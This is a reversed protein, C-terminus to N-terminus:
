GGGAAGVVRLGVPGAFAEMVRERQDPPMARIAGIISGILSEDPRSAIDAAEAEARAAAERAATEDIDILLQRELRLFSNVAQWSGSDRADAADARSQKLLARLNGSSPLAAAAAKQRPLRNQGAPPPRRSPKM